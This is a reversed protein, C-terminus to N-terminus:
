TSPCRSSSTPPLCPNVEEGTGRLATPLRPPLTGAGRRARPQALSMDHFLHAVPGILMRELDLKVVHVHCTALNLVVQLPDLPVLSRNQAERKQRDAIAVIHGVEIPTLRTLATRVLNTTPYTM